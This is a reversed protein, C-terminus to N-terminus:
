FYYFVGTKVAPLPLVDLQLLLQMKTGLATGMSVVPLLAADGFKVQAPLNKGILNTSDGYRFDMSFIGLNLFSNFLDVELMMIHDVSIGYDIVLSDNLLTGSAASDAARQERAIRDLKMSVDGFLKTYSFHLKEPFIDFGITLATPMKWELESEKYSGGSTKKRSSYTISDTANSMLGQRIETNTLVEPDTFDYKSAFTVPDVFFPLTYKALFSGRAKTDIGFRSILSFRWAKLALTPTWIEAEYHGKASGSIKESPYDIEGQISPIEFGSESSSSGVPIDYRGLLDIDIKGRMDLYFVHRSLNLALELYRNVQFAYGFTMTEWSASVDIPVNITGRMLFSAGEMLSDLSPNIFINPNGLANQYHIYFNQMNSFTGVGGLMPVDVRITPNPNQRAGVTPRFEELNTFMSDYQSIMSDISVNFKSRYDMVNISKELPLNLGFYGRPYQFSVNLPSHLLDYNFGIGLRAEFTPLMVKANLEETSVTGDAAFLRMLFLACILYATHVRMAVAGEPFFGSM